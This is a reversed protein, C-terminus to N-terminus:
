LVAGGDVEINGAVLGRACGMWSLPKDTVTVSDFVRQTAEAAVQSVTREVLNTVALPENSIPKKGV